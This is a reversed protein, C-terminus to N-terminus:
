VKLGGLARQEGIGHWGSIPMTRAHPRGLTQSHRWGPDRSRGGGPICRAEARRHHGSRVGGLDPYSAAGSRPRSVCTALKLELKFGLVGLISSTAVGCKGWGNEQSGLSTLHVVSQGRAEPISCTSHM